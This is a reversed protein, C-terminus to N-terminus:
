KLVLLKINGEGYLAKSIQNEYNYYLPSLLYRINNYRMYNGRIRDIKRLGINKLNRKLDKETFELYKPSLIRDKMTLIFDEDFKKMLLSTFYKEKSSFNKFFFNQYKKFKNNLFDNIIKKVLPNKKYEEKIVKKLINGILGYKGNVSILSAGKNKLVRYIEKFAQQPKSVHHIVNSCLVFDFFNKKFSTKLINENCFIIKNKYKKKIIKLSSNHLDVIYVKKAGLNILNIAGAGNGGGFDACIKGEIHKLYKKLQKNDYKKSVRKFGSTQLQKLHIKKYITSTYNDLKM